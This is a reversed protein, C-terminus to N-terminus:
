SQAEKEAKRSVMEVQLSVQEDEGIGASDPLTFDFTLMANKHASAGLNVGLIKGNENKILKTTEIDKNDMKINKLEVFDEVGTNDCTLDLSEDLSFRIENDYASEDVSIQVAYSRKSIQVPTAFFSVATGSKKFGGDNGGDNSNGKRNGGGGGGAGSSGGARTRPPLEELTNLGYSNLNLVDDIKFEDTELKKLNNKIQEKITELAEKLEKKQQSDLLKREIANHKPPEAKRILRHFAGNDTDVMILCHFPAYNSFDARRLYPINNSIHMGNRCLDIQSIDGISLNNLKVRVDGLKTKISYVKGSTMTTYAKYAKEGSLFDKARKKEKYKELAAAIHEKNLIGIKHDGEYYEVCLSGDAIAVFFNCAVAEEILTWLETEEEYFHNFGPIIVVSGSQGWLGEIMDLRDKIIKPITNNESYKFPTAMKGTKELVFYGDKGKIEGKEEFSALVAHGAAIKKNDFFGGYLIYRLDSAPIIATHGYGYSGAGELSKDSIGEALLADMRRENLGIGNDMISLIKIEKASVQAQMATVVRQASDPLVGGKHRKKFAKEALRLASKYSAFGPIDNPKHSALEFRVIAQERGAERAADLSNQLLERVITTPNLESQEALVGFGTLGGKEFLLDAQTKKM